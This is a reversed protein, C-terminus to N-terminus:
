KSGGNRQVSLAEWRNLPGYNWSAYRSDGGEVDEEDELRRIDNVSFAGINRMKEYWTGRSAFDGKLEAMMNIRLELGRQIESDTLLKWTMEEEYQTVIPHLTGVVYEIANQENSNYSQKGANLKYLPVGFFRAIDEVTLAATEVFQADKPNTSIAQYKIGYDMIAVRHGNNPGSHYRNWEERILDKKAVEKVSGDEQRIKVSGSLDGEVSLVGSPQADGEYFSASFSQAARGMEIVERARQLVSIGRLGDHSFAKYHCMDNSNLQMLEGTLPNTVDYWIGGRTDRWPNVLEAPVPILEVPRGTKESRIIWEYANGCSLRNVELMKKRTSPTMAENPRVTLLRLTEHDLHKRTKGDMLYVPLKSMSDSLVEICRNVASLRMAQQETMPGMGTPRQAPSVFVGRLSIPERERSARPPRHKLLM